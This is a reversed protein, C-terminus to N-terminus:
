GFPKSGDIFGPFKGGRMMPSWGFKDKAKIDAGEEIAKQVVELHSNDVAYHLATLGSRDKIEWSSGKERLIEVLESHGKYSATMLPTRWSGVEISDVDAGYALLVNVLNIDNKVTAIGLPTQGSKNPIELALPRQNLVKRVNLLHGSEIARHLNSVAIIDDIFIM